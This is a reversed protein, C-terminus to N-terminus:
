VCPLFLIVSRSNPQLQPESIVLISYGCVVGVSLTHTRTRKEDTLRSIKGRWLQSFRRMAHGCRCRTHTHTHEQDRGCSFHNPDANSGPLDIGDGDM